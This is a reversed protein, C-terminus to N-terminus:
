RQRFQMQYGDVYHKTGDAAAGGTVFVQADQVLKRLVNKLQAM